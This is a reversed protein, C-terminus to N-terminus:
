AAFFVDIDADDDDDCTSAIVAGVCGNCFTKLQLLLIRDLSKLSNVQAENFV